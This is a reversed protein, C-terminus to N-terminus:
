FRGAHFAVQLLADLPEVISQRVSRNPVKWRFDFRAKLRDSCIRGQSGLFLALGQELFYDFRPKTRRMRERQMEHSVRNQLSLILFPNVRGRDSIKEARLDPGM